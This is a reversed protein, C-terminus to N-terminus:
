SYLFATNDQLNLRVMRAQHQERLFRSLLKEPESGMQEAEVIIVDPNLRKIHDLAERGTKEVGTVTVGDQRQLLKELGHAFLSHNYLIFATWM